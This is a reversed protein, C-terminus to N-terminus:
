FPVATSRQILRTFIQITDFKRTKKSKTLSGKRGTPTWKFNEYFIRSFTGIFIIHFQVKLFFINSINNVFFIIYFEQIKTYLWYIGKLTLANEAKTWFYWSKNISCGHRVTCVAMLSGIMIAWSLSFARSIPRKIGSYRRSLHLGVLISVDFKIEVLCESWSIM